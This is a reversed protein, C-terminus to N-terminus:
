YRLSAIPTPMSSHHNWEIAMRNFVVCLEDIEGCGHVTVQMSFDGNSIRNAFQVIQTIPSVLRYNLWMSKAIAISFGIASALLLYRDVAQFFCKSPKDSLVSYKQMLTMFYAAALWHIAIAIFALVLGLSLANITVLKWILRLPMM